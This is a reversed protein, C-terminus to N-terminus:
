GWRVIYRRLPEPLVSRYVLSLWEATEPGLRRAIFQYFRRQHAFTPLGLWYALKFSDRAGQHDGLQFLKSGVFVAKEALDIKYYEPLHEVLMELASCVAKWAESKRRSSQSQDRNRRWILAEPIITYTPHAALFRLHYEFDEARNLVKSYGGIRLTTQRRSTSASALISGRIALRILDERTKADELLL